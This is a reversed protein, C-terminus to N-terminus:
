EELARLKTVIRHWTTLNKLCKLPVLNYSYLNFCSQFYTCSYLNVFNIFTSTSLTLPLKCNVHPLQFDHLCLSIFIDFACLQRKILLMTGVFIFFFFFIVIIREEKFGVDDRYCKTVMWSLHIELMKHDKVTDKKQWHM